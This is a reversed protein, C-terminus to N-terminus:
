KEVKKFNETNDHKDGKSLEILKLIIKNLLTPNSSALSYCMDSDELEWGMIHALEYCQLLAQEETEIHYTLVEDNAHYVHSIWRKHCDNEDIYTNFSAVKTM